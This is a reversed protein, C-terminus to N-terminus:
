FKTKADKGNKHVKMMFSISRLSCVLAVDVSIRGRCDNTYTNQGTAWEMTFNSKKHLKEVSHLSPMIHAYKCTQSILDDDHM